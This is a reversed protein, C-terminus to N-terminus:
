KTEKKDLSLIIVHRFSFSVFVSLFIYGNVMAIEEKCRVSSASEKAYSRYIIPYTIAEKECVSNVESKKRIKEKKLKTEEEVACSQHWDCM